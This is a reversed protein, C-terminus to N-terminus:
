CTCLFYDLKHSFAQFFLTEVRIITAGVLDIVAVIRIIVTGVNIIIFAVRVTIIM